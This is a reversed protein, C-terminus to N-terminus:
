MTGATLELDIGSEENSRVIRASAEGLAFVIFTFNSWAVQHFLNNILLTIFAVLYAELLTRNVLFTSRRWQSFVRWFIYGVAIIYTLFGFLGTESLVQMPWSHVSLGEYNGSYKSFIDYGYGILPYDRVALFGMSFLDYRAGVSQPNIGVLTEYAFGIVGTLWLILFALALVLIKQLFLHPKKMFFIAIIGMAVAVWTGRSCSFFLPILMFGLAVLILHRFKRSLVDPTSLFYLFIMFLPSIATGLLNPHSFLATVRPAAGFPTIFVRNVKEVALSYNVGTAYFMLVQGLAVLSAFICLLTYLRLFRRLNENSTLANLVLFILILKSNLEILNSYTPFIGIPHPSLLSINCFVLHLIILVIFPTVVIERIKGALSMVIFVIIFLFLLKPSLEVKLGSIFVLAFAAAFFGYPRLCDFMRAKQFVRPVVLIAVFLVMLPLVLLLPSIEIPFPLTREMSLVFVYPFTATLAGILIGFLTGITSEQYRM